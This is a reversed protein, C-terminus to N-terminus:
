NIYFFLNIFPIRFISFFIILNNINKFKLNNKIKWKISWNILFNNIILSSYCIRIYFYLTILTLNVLCLIIFIRNIIILNILTIWKPFFGFLPPLGGLSLIPICFILKKLNNKYFNLSFIQNINFINFIKFNIIISILLIRYSFFYIKWSNENNLINSTIWALHNISSFALIKQVSTQNM